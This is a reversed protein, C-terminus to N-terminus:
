CLVEIKFMLKKLFFPLSSLSSTLIQEPQDSDTEKGKVLHFLFVSIHAEMTYSLSQSDHINSSHKKAWPEQFDHRPVCILILHVFNSISPTIQLHWLSICSFESNQPPFALISFSLPESPFGLPKSVLLLRAVPSLLSLHFTLFPSLTSPPPCSKPHEERPLLLTPSGMLERWFLSGVVESMTGMWPQSPIKLLVCGGVHVPACKQSFGHHSSDIHLKGPNQTSTDGKCFLSSFIWCMSFFTEKCPQQHDQPKKLIM